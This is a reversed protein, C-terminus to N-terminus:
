TTGLRIASRTMGRFFLLALTAVTAACASVAVAGLIAGLVDGTSFQSVCSGPTRSCLDPTIGHLGAVGLVVLFTTGWVLPGIRGRTALLWVVVVGATAGLAPLLAFDRVSQAADRPSVEYWCQLPDTLACQSAGPPHTAAILVGGVFLVVWALALLGLPGLRKVSKGEM